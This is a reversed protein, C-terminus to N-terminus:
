CNHLYLASFIMQFRIHLLESNPVAKFIYGSDGPILPSYFNTTTVATTLSFPTLRKELPM